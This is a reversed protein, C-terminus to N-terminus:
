FFLFLNIKPSKRSRSLKFYSRMCFLGQYILNILKSSLEFIHMQSTFWGLRRPVTRKLDGLRKRIVSNYQNVGLMDTGINKKFIKHM